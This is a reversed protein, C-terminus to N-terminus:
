QVRDCHISNQRRWGVTLSAITVMVLLGVTAPEPVADIAIAGNGAGHGLAKRWVIYDRADVVGNGSGDAVSYNTAGFHAKWVQYDQQNVTWDVNYDGVVTPVQTLNFLASTLWTSSTTGLEAIHFGTVPGSPLTESSFTSAPLITNGVKFRTDGPFTINVFLLGDYSTTSPPSTQDDNWVFASIQGSWTDFVVGAVNISVYVHTLPYYTALQFISGQTNMGAPSAADYQITGSIPAGTAVGNLSAPFGSSSPSISSVTSTFKYTVEVAIASHSVLVGLISLSLGVIQSKANACVTEM